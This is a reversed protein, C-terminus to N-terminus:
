KSPKCKKSEKKLRKSHALEAEIAVNYATMVPLWYIKKSRGEKFGILGNSTLIITINRKLLGSISRKVPTKWNTM